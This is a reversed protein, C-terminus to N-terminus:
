AVQLRSEARCDVPGGSALSAHAAMAVELDRRAEVASSVDPCGAEVADLFHRIEAQYGMRDQAPVKFRRRQLEPSELRQRLWSPRIKGVVRAWPSPELPYLDVAASDPWIKMAGRSGTAIFEPCRGASAQWSFALTAQWGARSSLILTVNDEGSAAPRGTARSAYILDPEGYLERVARIYHVSFDLLIGIGADNQFTQTHLATGFFLRPEGIESLLRRAERVAPRFPINEGVALVVGSAEAARIIADCDELSTALPKEVLVHKGAMAGARSVERHMHAPMAVIMSTVAPHRVASEWGILPEQAGLSSAIRRTRARDRGCVFLPGRYVQRLQTGLYQGWRTGVLCVAMGCNDM